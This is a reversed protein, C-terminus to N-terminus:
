ERRDGRWTIVARAASGSSARACRQRLLKELRQGTESLRFVRGRGSQILGAGELIRLISRIQGFTIETGLILDHRTHAMRDALQALVTFTEKPLGQGIELLCDDCLTEAPEPQETDGLLELLRYGSESLGHCGNGWTLGAGRLFHLADRVQHDTLGSEQEITELTPFDDVKLAFFVKKVMDNDKIQKYLYLLCPDCLM